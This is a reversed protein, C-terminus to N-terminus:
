ARGAVSCRLSGSPPGPADMGGVCAGSSELGPPVGAIPCPKHPPRSDWFWVDDSGRM